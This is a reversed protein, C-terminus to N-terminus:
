PVATAAGPSSGEDPWLRRWGNDLFGQRMAAMSAGPFANIFAEMGHVFDLHDYLLWRASLRARPGDGGLMSDRHRGEHCAGPLM